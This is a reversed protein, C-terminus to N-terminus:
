HKAHQALIKKQPVSATRQMVVKSDCAPDFDPLERLYNGTYGGPRHHCAVFGRSAFFRIGVDNREWVDVMVLPRTTHNLKGVVRDVLASGIGRRWCAPHVALNAIRVYTVGHIGPMRECYLYGLVTKGGDVTAIMDTRARGRSAERFEEADWPDPFCLQEIELLQPYHVARVSNEVVQLKM